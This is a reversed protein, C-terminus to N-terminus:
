FIRPIGIAGGLVIGIVFWIILGIVLMVIGAPIAAISWKIILGVMSWFPMNVNQINVNSGQEQIRRNVDRLDTVIAESANQSAQLSELLRRIEQLLEVQDKLLEQPSKHQIESNSITM